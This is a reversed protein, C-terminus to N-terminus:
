VAGRREFYQTVLKDISLISLIIIGQVVLMIEKPVLQNISLGGYDLIAFLLASFIIGLPNNKALLAVAIATFGINNSFGAEYFGKYGFIFNIGVLSTIGAGTFFSILIIKNTKLGIYKSATENFGIARIRYGFKTKYIFVYSIVSIIIALIFSANLSSGKFFPIFESLKFLMNNDNLEQTRMTSKVAFFDVLFYNILALIIFNLMITTIVESVDKKVKIYAPILGFVGSIVFGCVICILLILPFPLDQIQLAIIAIVFSGANLQGEAGINFLSAHFCIALGCGCIILPTAKFLTQGIGYGSAFVESFIISFIEIPNKNILLLLLTIIILTAALSLSISILNIKAKRSM